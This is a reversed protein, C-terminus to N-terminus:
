PVSVVSIAVYECVREMCSARGIEAAQARRVSAGGLIARQQWLRRRSAGGAGGAGRRYHNRRAAADRLAAGTRAGAHQCEAEGSRDGAARLNLAQDARLNEPHSLDSSCVDSIWDSIRM